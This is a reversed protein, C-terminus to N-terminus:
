AKMFSNRVVLYNRISKRESKSLANFWGVALIALIGGLLFLCNAVVGSKIYIWNSACGILLTSCVLTLASAFPWPLPYVRQALWAAVCAKALQGFMVGFAVGPLGFLQAMVYISAGTALLFVAYSYISLYSKKSLGIGIETIWGTGQIALGMALPFVIAAAGAYRSSALLVIVPYAAASLGLVAVCLGITSVRLVLSYTHGADAEKYIALSFPGWATQFAQIFLMLLMAVKAGAAYIGLEQTGVLGNVLSREMAPVFAGICCIIGYPVAFPLMERQFRLNRPIGLWHRVFFVGLVGFCANVALYVQFVGQIGIGVVSVAVLLLSVNLIVSGISMFLFRVRSFTWKLLNQSFNIFLIFPVQLVILKVLKVAVPESSIYGALNEANIWLLPLVALIFIVQLFFSQSILQRRSHEDKYEYFFRAVASDQGFIFFTALMTALVSFFDIIGYDAVSFYRALLPFTILTFVKNLAAAGGYLASDRVVFRLRQWISLRSPDDTWGLKTM